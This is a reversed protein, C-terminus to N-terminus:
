MLSYHAHCKYLMFDNEHQHHYSGAPYGPQHRPMTSALLTYTGM